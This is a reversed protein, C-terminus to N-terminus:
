AILAPVAENAAAASATDRRLVFHFTSGAGLASHVGVSGGQATALMRTLALGLGTGSHRRTSSNDIQNFETFLHALDTAAIGIGSDQVEVRLRNDAGALVRLKVAGGPHSFKIANSLYNALMQKFRTRDLVLNDLGPEIETSIVVANQLAAVQLMDIVEQVARPVNMPEPHFELKGAAIKSVDLVDNILELLHQGSNRIHGVFERYKPTAPTVQESALLDSFGIIANLPTRLEHSMNALFQSKLQSAERIQRNEEGLRQSELRLAMTQERFAMDRAMTEAEAQAGLMALVLNQNAEVLPTEESGLSEGNAELLTTHLRALVARTQKIQAHLKELEHQAATM